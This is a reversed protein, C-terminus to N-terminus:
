QRLLEKGTIRSVCRPVYDYIYASQMTTVKYFREGQSEGM